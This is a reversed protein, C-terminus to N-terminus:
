CNSIEKRHVRVIIKIFFMVPIGMIHEEILTDNYVLFNIKDPSLIHELELGYIRLM